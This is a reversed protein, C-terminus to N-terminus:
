SDCGAVADDVVERSLDITKTVFDFLQLLTTGFELVSALGSTRPCYTPV